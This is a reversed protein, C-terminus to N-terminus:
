KKFLTEIDLSSIDQITGNKNLKTEHKFGYTAVAIADAIDNDKVILNLNYTSNAWRIAIHKMTIKGRLQKKKVLKNKASDDKSLRIGLLSRWASTDVYRVINDKGKLKLEHLIAYHIFELQKQTTRNRGKNTQEIYIFDYSHNDLVEMIKKAMTKARIIFSFDEVTGNKEPSAPSKLVGYDILVSNDLVSYGSSNSLDLGVVKM